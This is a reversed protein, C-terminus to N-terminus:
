FSATKILNYAHFRVKPVMGLETYYGDTLKSKSCLILQKLGVIGQQSFASTFIQGICQSQTVDILRNPAFDHEKKLKDCKNGIVVIDADAALSLLFLIFFM